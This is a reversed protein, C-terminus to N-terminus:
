VHACVVVYVAEDFVNLIGCMYVCVCGLVLAAMIKHSFVDLDVSTNM